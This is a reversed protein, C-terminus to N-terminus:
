YGICGVGRPPPAPPRPVQGRAEAREAKVLFIEYDHEVAALRRAVQAPTLMAVAAHARATSAFRPHLDRVRTTPPTSSPVASVSAQSSHPTLCCVRRPRCPPLSAPAVEVGTRTMEGMEAMLTRESGASHLEWEGM